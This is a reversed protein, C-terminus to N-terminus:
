PYMQKLQTATVSVPPGIPAPNRFDRAGIDAIGDDVAGINSNMLGGFGRSAATMSGRDVGVTRIVRSESETWWPHTYPINGFNGNVGNIHGPLFGTYAFCNTVVLSGLSPNQFIPAVGGDPALCDTMTVHGGQLDM